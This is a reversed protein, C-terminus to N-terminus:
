WTHIAEFLHMPSLMLKGDKDKMDRYRAQLNRVCTKKRATRSCYLKEGDNNRGEVDELDKRKCEWSAVSIVKHTTRQVEDDLTSEGM